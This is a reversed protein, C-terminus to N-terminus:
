ILQKFAIYFPHTKLRSKFVPVTTSTVVTHPLSNWVASEAVCFSQRRRHSCLTSRIQSNGDISVTTQSYCATLIPQLHSGTTSKTRWYLRRTHSGPSLQYGTFNIRYRCLMTEDGLLQILDDPDECYVAWHLRLLPYPNLARKALLTLYDNTSERHKNSNFSIIHKHYFQLYKILFKFNDHITIDLADNWISFQLYLYNYTIETWYSCHVM